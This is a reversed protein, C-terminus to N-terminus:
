NEYTQIPWQKELSSHPRRGRKKNETSFNTFAKLSYLYINGNNFFIKIKM